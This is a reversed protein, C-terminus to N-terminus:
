KESLSSISVVKSVTSIDSKLQNVQMLLQANRVIYGKLQGKVCLSVTRKKSKQIVPVFLRKSFILNSSTQLVILCVIGNNISIIPVLM